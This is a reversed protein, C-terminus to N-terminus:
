QITFLSNKAFTLCLKPGKRQQSHASLKRCQAAIWEGKKCQLERKDCESRDFTCSEMWRSIRGCEIVKLKLPATNSILFRSFCLEATTHVNGSHTDWRIRPCKYLHFLETRRRIGNDPSTSERLTGSGSHTLVRVSSLLLGKTQVRDPYPQEFIFRM